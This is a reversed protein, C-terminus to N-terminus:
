SYRKACERSVEVMDGPQQTAEKLEAFAAGDM